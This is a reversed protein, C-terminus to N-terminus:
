SDVRSHKISTGARSNIKQNKELWSMRIGVGGGM